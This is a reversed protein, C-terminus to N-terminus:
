SMVEEKRHRQEHGASDLTRQTQTKIKPTNLRGELSKAFVIIKALGRMVGSVM